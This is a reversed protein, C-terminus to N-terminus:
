GVWVAVADTGATASWQRGPVASAQAVEVPQAPRVEHTPATMAIVQNYLLYISTFLYKHKYTYTYKKIYTYIEIHIYM